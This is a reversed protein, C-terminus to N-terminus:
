VGRDSCFQPAALAAGKKIWHFGEVHVQIALQNVRNIEDSVCGHFIDTLRQDLEIAKVMLDFYAGGLFLICM